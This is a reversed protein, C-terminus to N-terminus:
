RQSRGTLQVKVVPKMRDLAALAISANSPSHATMMEMLSNTDINSTMITVREHIARENLLQWLQPVAQSDSFSAKDVDDLLLYRARKARDCFNTDFKSKLLYTLMSVDAISIGRVFASRLICRAMHSKGIGVDGWVYFNSKLERAQRWAEPNMAEIEPKSTSWRATRTAENVLGLAILNSFRAKLDESQRDRMTMAWGREACKDCLGRDMPHCPTAPISTGCRSCNDTSLDSM